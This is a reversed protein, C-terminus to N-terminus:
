AGRFICPDKPSRAIAVFLSLANWAFYFYLRLLFGSGGPEPCVALPLFRRLLLTSM